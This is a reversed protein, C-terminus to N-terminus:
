LADAYLEIVHKVAVHDHGQSLMDTMQMMCAPCGTTVVDAGTALINERKRGGIRSSTDYHALNFSGGNGCCTDAENMEVFEYGPLGKLIARPEESVGISKKLHCPDHWTVTKTTGKGAQAALDVDFHKVLFESIDMTRNAIREAKKEAEPSIKAAMKPWLKKITSTCTACPTVLVDYNGSSFPKLNHKLLKLFSEEDGSALTPIGCCGQNKPLYIGCGHHELVKIVAHGVQPLMKDVVCGPYFAVRINATGKGTDMGSYDKRFPRKALPMFHRDGILPSMIKSCSTGLFPDAQSTMIGQFKSGMSLLGSFLRPHVLTRRFIAKKMPSLGIYGTLIARAKIFIDTIKVGSPCNAECSGCLLCKELRDKVEVPSDIMRKALSDILALKGRAVDGELMSDKFVPCVSQCMGCRMCTVLLDDLEALSTRLNAIDKM